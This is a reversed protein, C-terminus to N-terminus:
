FDAATKGDNNKIETDAGAELLVSTVENANHISAIILATSGENNVANIDAGAELLIEAIDDHNCEAAYMLANMGWKNKINVDAGAALLSIVESVQGRYAALILKTNGNSDKAKDVEAPGNNKSTNGSSKKAAGKLMFSDRIATMTDTDKGNFEVSMYMEPKEDTAKSVTRAYLTAKKGDENKFTFTYYGDETRTIMSSSDYLEPWENISNDLTTEGTGGYILTISSSKDNKVISIIVEVADDEVTAKWGNPIDLTFEGFDQVAGFSAAASFIVLVVAILLRRM